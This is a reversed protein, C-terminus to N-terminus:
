FHKWEDTADWLQICGREDGSALRKGDLSFVLCLVAIRAHYPGGAPIFRAGDTKWIRITGDASGSAVYAADTSYALATVAADHARQPRGATRGVHSESLWITGDASGVVVRQGYPCLAAEPGGYGQSPLIFRAGTLANRVHFGSQEDSRRIISWRADPAFSVAYEADPTWVLFKGPLPVVHGSSNTVARTWCSFEEEDESSHQQVDWTRLRMTRELLGETRVAWNRCSYSSILRCGDSLWALALVINSGIIANADATIPAGVAATSSM